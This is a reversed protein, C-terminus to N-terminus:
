GWWSRLSFAPCSQLLRLLLLLEVNWWVVPTILCAAEFFAASSLHRIFLVVVRRHFGLDLTARSHQQWFVALWRIEGPHFRLKLIFVLNLYLFCRVLLELIRNVRTLDLNDWQRFLLMRALKRSLNLLQLADDLTHLLCIIALIVIRNLIIIM